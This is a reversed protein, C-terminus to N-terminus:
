PKPILFHDHTGKTKDGYVYKPNLNSVADVLKTFMEAGLVELIEIKTSGDPLQEVRIKDKIKEIFEEM